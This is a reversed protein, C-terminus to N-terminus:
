TELTVTVRLIPLTIVPVFHTQINKNNELKNIYTGYLM